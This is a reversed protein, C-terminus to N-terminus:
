SQDEKRPREAPHTQAHIAKLQELSVQTYIATTELKEHGLLQQIFPIDAGSELVHQSGGPTQAGIKAQGAGVVGSVWPVGRRGLAGARRSQPAPPM